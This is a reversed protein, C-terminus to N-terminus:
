KDGTANLDPHLLDGRLLEIGILHGDRDFDLVINSNAMIQTVSEGTTIDNKLYIYAADVDADYTITINTQKAIM